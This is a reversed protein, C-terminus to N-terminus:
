LNCSCGCKDGYSPSLDENEITKQRQEKKRSIHPGWNSSVSVSDINKQIREPKVNGASISPGGIQVWCMMWQQGSANYNVYSLLIPVFPGNPNLKNNSFSFVSLVTAFYNKITHITDHSGNKINKLVHITIFLAYVTFGHSTVTWTGFFFFVFCVFRPISFAFIFVIWVSVFKSFWNRIKQVWFM